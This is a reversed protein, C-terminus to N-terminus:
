RGRRLGLRLLLPAIRVRELPRRERNGALDDIHEILSLLAEVATFGGQAPSFISQEHQFALEFPNERFLLPQGGRLSLSTFLSPLSFLLAFEALFLSRRFRAILLL